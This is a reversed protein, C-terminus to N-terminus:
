KVRTYIFRMIWFFPKIPLLYTLYRKIFGEKTQLAKKRFPYPYYGERKLEAFREKVWKKDRVRALCLVLSERCHLANAELWWLRTYDNNDNYKGCEIYSNLLKLMALSNGYLRIARAETMGQKMASSERVRYNYVILDFKVFRELHYLLDYHFIVDEGMFLEEQLFVQNELLFDRRILGQWMVMMGFNDNEVNRNKPSYQERFSMNRNEVVKYETSGVFGIESTDVVSAQEDSVYVYDGWVCDAREKKAAAFLIEAARPVIMDDGDVFWIYEGRAERIGVNRTASVGKNAANQILRIRHNKRCLAEIVEATGDTSCDNICLIEYEIGCVAEISAICREM